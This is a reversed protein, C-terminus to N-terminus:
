SISSFFYRTFSKEGVSTESKNPSKKDYYKEYISIFFQSIGMTVLNVVLHTREQTPNDKDFWINTLLADCADEYLFKRDNAAIAMQLCTIGGYLDIRRMILECAQERDYLYSCRICEIAYIEFDDAESNLKGESDHDPAYRTFSKLIKSAMLASCLRTKMQGLFLKAMDLRHTLVCWLFLDRFIYEDPTKKWAIEPAVQTQRSSSYYM